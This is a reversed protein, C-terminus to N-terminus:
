NVGNKIFKKEKDSLETAQLTEDLKKDKEIAAEMITRTVVAIAVRLIADWNTDSGLEEYHKGNNDTKLIKYGDIKELAKEKTEQKEVILYDGMVIQWGQDLIRILTFPTGEIKERVILSNSTKNLTENISEMTHSTDKQEM